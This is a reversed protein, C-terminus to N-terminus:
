KHCLECKILQTLEMHHKCFEKKARLTRCSDCFMLLSAKEQKRVLKRAMETAYEEIEPFAKLLKRDGARASTVYQSVASQTIGLLKAVETQKLGYDKILSKVLAARITPLIRVVVLECPPKM